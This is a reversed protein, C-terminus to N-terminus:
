GLDARLTTSVAVTTAEALARGGRRVAAGARRPVSRNEVVARVLTEALEAKSGVRFLDLAATYAGRERLEALTALAVSTKGTRRAGVLIRNIGNDLANALEDVDDARGILRDAAVPGDTPFLASSRM